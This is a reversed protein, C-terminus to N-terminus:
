GICEARPALKRRRPVIRQLDTVISIALDIARSSLELPRGIQLSRSHGSVCWNCFDECNNTLLRYDHEGVRSRARGIIERASYSTALRLDVFM